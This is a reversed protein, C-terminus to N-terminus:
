TLWMGVAGAETALARLVTFHDAEVPDESLASMLGFQNQGPARLYEAKPM